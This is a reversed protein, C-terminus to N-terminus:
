RRAFRARIDPLPEFLINNWCLTLQAKLILFNPTRFEQLNDSDLSLIHGTRTNLIEVQRRGQNSKVRMQWDDDIDPLMRGDVEQRHVMPRIKMLKGNSQELMQFNV